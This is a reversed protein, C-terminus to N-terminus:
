PVSPYEHVGPSGRPRHAKSSRVALTQAARAEMGKVPHGLILGICDSAGPHGVSDRLSGGLIGAPLPDTSYRSSSVYRPIKRPLAIFLSMKFESGGTVAEM